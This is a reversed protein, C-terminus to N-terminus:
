RCQWTYSYLIYLLKKSYQIFASFEYNRSKFLLWFTSNLEKFFIVKNVTIIFIFMDCSYMTWINDIVTSRKGVAGMLQFAVTCLKNRTSLIVCYENKHAQWRTHYKLFIFFGNFNGDNISHRRLLGYRITKSPWIVYQWLVLVPAERVHWKKM